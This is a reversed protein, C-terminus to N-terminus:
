AAVSCAARIRNGSAHGEALSAAALHASRLAEVRITPDSDATAVGLLQVISDRDELEGLSRIAQRRVDPEAATLASRLANLHPRASSPRVRGLHWAAVARKQAVKDSLALGALAAGSEESYSDFAALIRSLVKASGTHACDRLASLVVPNELSPTLGYVAELQRGEDKSRLDRLLVEQSTEEQGAAPGGGSFLLLLMAVMCQLEYRM